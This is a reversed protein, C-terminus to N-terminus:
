LSINGNSKLCQKKQETSLAAILPKAAKAAKLMDLM